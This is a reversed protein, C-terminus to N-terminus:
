ENDAEELEDQGDWLPANRLIETAQEVAPICAEADEHTATAHADGFLLGYSSVLVFASDYFWCIEVREPLTVTIRDRLHKDEPGAGLGQLRKYLADWREQYIQDQKETESM